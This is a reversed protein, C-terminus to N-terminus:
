SLWHRLDRGTEVSLREVDPAFRAALERLDARGVGPDERRSTSHSARVWKGLPSRKVADITWGLGSGMLWKQLGPYIVRNYRTQVSAPRFGPAVGVFSFLEDLFPGPASELDDYFMVKLQAPGFYRRVVALHKAYMGRDLLEPFQAAAQPFSLGAYKDPHLAYASIARDVPNRLIVFVKAGPVDRAINALAREHYMYDPTIEGRAKAAGAEAFQEEYWALGRGYNVYFFHLEKKRTMFVDPHEALCNYAWTTGARQAGLGIFTPLM